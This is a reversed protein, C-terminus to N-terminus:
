DAPLPNEEIVLAVKDKKKIVILGISALILLGGVLFKWRGSGVRTVPMVLHQPKEWTAETM